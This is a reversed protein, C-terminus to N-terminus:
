KYSEIWKDFLDMRIILRKGIKRVAKELGNIDRILLHHRMQALTFPYLDSKAIQSITWYKLKEM